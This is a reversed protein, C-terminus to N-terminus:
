EELMNNNTEDSLEDQRSPRHPSGISLCATSGTSSSFLNNSKMFTVINLIAYISFLDLGEETFIM